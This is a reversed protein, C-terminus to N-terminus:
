YIRHFNYSSKNFRFKTFSKNIKFMENNPEAIMKMKSLLPEVTIKSLNKDM